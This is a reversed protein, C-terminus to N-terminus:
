LQRPQCRAQFGQIKEYSQNLVLVFSGAQKFITRLDLFHGVQTEASGVSGTKQAWGAIKIAKLFLFIEYRGVRVNKLFNSWSVVSSVTGESSTAWAHVWGSVCLDTM